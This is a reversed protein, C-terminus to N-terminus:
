SEIQERTRNGRTPSKKSSFLMKHGTEIL